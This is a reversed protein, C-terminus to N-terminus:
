TNAIVLLNNENNVRFNNGKESQKKKIEESLIVNIIM